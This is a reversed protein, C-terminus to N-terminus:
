VIKEEPDPNEWVIGTSDVVRTIAIEYIAAGKERCTEVFDYDYITHNVVNNNMGPAIWELDDSYYEAIYLEM